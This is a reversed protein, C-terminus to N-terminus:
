IQNNTLFRNGTWSKSANIMGAFAENLHVQKKTGYKLIVERERAAKRRLADVAKSYAVCIVLLSSSIIIFTWM